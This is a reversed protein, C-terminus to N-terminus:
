QRDPRWRIAVRGPGAHIGEEIVAGEPGWSPARRHGGAAFVWRDAWNSAFTVESGGDAEVIASTRVSLREGARAPVTARVRAGFAPREVPGLMAGGGVADIEIAAIGAPVTLEFWVTPVFPDSPAECICSGGTEDLVWEVSRDGPAALAVASGVWAPLAARTRM